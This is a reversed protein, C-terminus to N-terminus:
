TGAQRAMREEVEQYWPRIPRGARREAFAQGIRIAPVVNAVVTWAAVALFGNDPRGALSFATLLILNPNRRAIITRFFIDFRRWTFLEQKFFLLFVGELLRGTVYGGVVIWTAVELGVLGPSVGWAWAAWWIPPHVLDLGHDLVNGIKSSTLTCRALKGDVTDLFTMLWGAALGATFWGEAFFWTALVTLLYGVATVSNPRVGRAALRRVVARAPLPWLWKTVLDTVGKYSARFIANEIKRSNKPDARYVFPPEFKRLQANYAPALDLISVRRQRPAEDAEEDVRAPSEPALGRLAGVASELELGSVHAALSEVHSSGELEDSLIVDRNERLGTLLREDYFLDARLVIWSSNETAGRVQESPELVDITTVGLRAASRRLRDAASLGWVLIEEESGAADKGPLILLARLDDTTQPRVTAM